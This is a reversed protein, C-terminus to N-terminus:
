LFCEKNIRGGRGLTDEYKQTFKEWSVKMGDGREREMEGAREMVCLSACVRKERSKKREGGMEEIKLYLNSQFCHHRVLVDQSIKLLEWEGMALGCGRM